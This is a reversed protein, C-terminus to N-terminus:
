KKPLGCHSCIHKKGFGKRKIMGEDMLQALTTPKKQGPPYIFMDIAYEKKLDDATKREDAFLQKISLMYVYAYLNEPLAYEPDIGLKKSIYFRKRIRELSRANEDRDGSKTSVQLKDRHAKVFATWEPDKHPLRAYSPEEKELEVTETSPVADVRNDGMTSPYPVVKVSKKNYKKKPRFPTIEDSERVPKSEFIGSGLIHVPM